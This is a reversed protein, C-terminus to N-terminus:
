YGDQHFIEYLLKYDFSFEYWTGLGKLFQKLLKLCLVYLTPPWIRRHKRPMRWYM